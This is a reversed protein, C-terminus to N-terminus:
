LFWQMTLRQKRMKWMLEEDDMELLLQNAQVSDFDQVNISKIYGSVRPLVPVLQTEVQANDTTEHNMAYSIKKFGFFGGVLLIIVLIILRIPSKKKKVQVPEPNNGAKEQEM